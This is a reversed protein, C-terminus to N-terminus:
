KCNKKIWCKECETTGDINYTVYMEEKKCCTCFAPWLTTNAAQRRYVIADALTGM